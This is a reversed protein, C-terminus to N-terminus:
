SEAAERLVNTLKTIVSPDRHAYKRCFKQRVSQLRPELWWQAVNDWIATVHKAASEPTEHFIGVSQLESFDGDAWESWEWYNKDWYIVTPINAALSELYTTANYTSIFLRCKKVLKKIPKSGEDLQVSPFRDLWRQKQNWGYDAPYLRIRMQAQLDPPLHGYFAFQDEFYSLMQGALAMSRLDFVYRPMAVTVILAQGKPNWKGYTLQVWFQGVDRLHAYGRNGNGTTVYFDAVDLEFQTSANYRHFPGGGHQGIVLKCGQDRQQACWLKFLDDSFHQYATFIVDVKKPLKTNDIVQHLSDFGEIFNTPIWRPILDKIIKVFKTDDYYAQIKWSRMEEKYSGSDVERFVPDIEMTGQLSLRLWSLNTASLSSKTLLYVKSGPRLNKLSFSLVKKCIPKIRNILQDKKSYKKGSGYSNINYAVKEHSKNIVQITTWKEILHGIFVHNWLDDYFQGTAQKTNSPVFKKWDEEFTHSILREDLNEAIQLMSWRDFTVALFQILWHGIMLNWSRNSYNTGHLKNLEKAILPMLRQYQKHLFVYDIFAKERDDWHHPLIYTGKESMIDKGILTWQGLFVYSGGLLNIDFLPTTVLVM